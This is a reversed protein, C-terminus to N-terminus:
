WHDCESKYGCRNLLLRIFRQGERIAHETWRKRILNTAHLRDCEWPLTVLVTRHMASRIINYLMDILRWMRVLHIHASQMDLVLDNIDYRRRQM